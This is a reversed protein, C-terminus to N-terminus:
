ANHIEKITTIIQDITLSQPFIKIHNTDKSVQSLCLYDYGIQVEIGEGIMVADDELQPDTTRYIEVDDFHNKLILAVQSTRPM